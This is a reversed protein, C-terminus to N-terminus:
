ATNIGITGPIPPQNLPAPPNNFFYFAGAAASVQRTYDGYSYIFLEHWTLPIGM